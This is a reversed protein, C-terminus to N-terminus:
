ARIESPGELLHKLNALARASQRKLIWRTLTSDLLRWALRKSRFDLTRRFRCGSGTAQLRYVIRAAGEDTDTVIEWRQPPVCAEVTWKALNPRGAAMILEIVTEGTTLPRNPAERVEATAPHWRHWFAPTTVFDLVQAPPRVIEIETEVRAYRHAATAPEARVPRTVM